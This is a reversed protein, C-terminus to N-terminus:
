EGDDDKNDFSIMNNAQSLAKRRLENRYGQAKNKIFLAMKVMMM